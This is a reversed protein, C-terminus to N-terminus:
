RPARRLAGRSVVVAGIPRIAGGRWATSPSTERGCINRIERGNGPRIRRLDWTEDIPENEMEDWNMGDISSSPQDVRLQM